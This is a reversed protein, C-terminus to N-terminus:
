AAAHVAKDTVGAHRQFDALLVAADTRVNQYRVLPLGAAACIDNKTTDRHQASKVAHSRDDLEVVYLVLGGAGCVVFDLVKRDFRNILGVVVAGVLIAVILM